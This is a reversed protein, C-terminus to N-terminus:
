TRLGVKEVAAENRELALDVKYGRIVPEKGEQPKGKSEHKLVPEVQCTM